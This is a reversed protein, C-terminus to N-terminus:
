VTMCAFGLALSGAWSPDVTDLSCSAFGLALVDDTEDFQLAEDEQDQDDESLPMAPPCYIMMKISKNNRSVLLEKWRRKM